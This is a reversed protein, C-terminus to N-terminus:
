HRDDSGHNQHGGDPAHGDQAHRGHDSRQAAFWDHVAMTLSSDDSSYTIRGGQPIDAYTVDLGAGHERLEALGPMDEGHIRAPDAFDGAEFRAAEERLHERILAIQTSDGEAKAIVRQVGGDPRDEFVHVTKELDFPMVAAGRAAVEEQRTADDCGAVLLVLALAFGYIIPRKM